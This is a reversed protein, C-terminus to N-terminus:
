RDYVIEVDPFTAELALGIETTPAQLKRIVVWEARWGETGLVFKGFREVIGHLMICAHQGAGFDKLFAETVGGAEPITQAIWNEPVLAAHIGSVGRVVDDQSWDECRLEPSPWPTCHQPSRLERATMDWVWCRWGFTDDYGRSVAVTKPPGLLMVRPSVKETDGAVAVRKRSALRLRWFSWASTGFGAAAVLAMALNGRAIWSVVMVGNLAVFPLISWRLWGAIKM